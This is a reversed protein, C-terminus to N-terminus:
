RDEDYVVDWLFLGEPPATPVRATRVRSALITRADAPTVAGTGARMLLGALSRVMKYLFGDARAVIVIEMGRKRVSLETLNRVTNEVVRNPNATFAAFDHRGVLVAATDAMAAADLKETVHTRYLRLFPPVIIGNWIFYRYEKGVASRRAHFDPAALKVQLVRIDSPLVANLSRRLILPRAAGELDAHAVQKRAHVGQDTRGSGHIIAKEGTIQGVAEQLLQQVTKHRPQIQWGAYATGDYSIDFRYKAM